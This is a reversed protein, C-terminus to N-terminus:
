WLILKALNDASYKSSNANHRKYYLKRREDAYQKGDNKIYTPYDNYRVDGISAIYEGNKYVDIKKNKKKSPVINLDNEEAKKYSYLTIKYVMTYILLM